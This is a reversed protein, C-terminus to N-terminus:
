LKVPILKRIVRAPTGVALSNEPINETVVSGSGIIVNDGLTVSPLIKSNAGIFNYNGINVNGLIVALPGIESFEGIEVDHHISASANILSGKHISVNNSIFVNHMINIGNGLFTNYKGVRSTSSVVSFLSGGMSIFKDALMKRIAPGGIGLIFRNDTKLYEKADDLHTIIKFKSYLRPDDYKNIDDYFTLTTPISEEIIDLIEIAHGKAGIILM